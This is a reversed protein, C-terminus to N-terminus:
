INGANAGSHLCTCSYDWQCHKPQSTNPNIVILLDKDWLISIAHIPLMEGKVEPVNQRSDASWLSLNLHTRYVLEGHLICTNQICSHKHQWHTHLLLQLWTDEPSSTSAHQEQLQKQGWIRMDTTHCTDDGKQRRYTWTTDSWFWLRWTHLVRAASSVNWGAPETVPTGTHLREIQIIRPDHLM